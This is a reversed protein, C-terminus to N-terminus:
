KIFQKEIYVFEWLGNDMKQLEMKLPTTMIYPSKTPSAKKAIAEASRLEEVFALIQKESVGDFRTTEAQRKEPIFYTSLVLFFRSQLFEYYLYITEASTKGGFIGANQKAYLRVKAEALDAQMQALLKAQSSQKQWIIGAWVLSVLLAVGCIVGVIKFIRSFSIKVLKQKM